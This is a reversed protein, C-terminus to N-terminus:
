SATAVQPREKRVREPAAAPIVELRNVVEDVGPTAWAAHEALWGEEWTAVEGTLTVEGEEVLVAIAAPLPRRDRAFALRIRSRVQEVAPLEHNLTPPV